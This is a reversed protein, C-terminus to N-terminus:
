HDGTKLPRVGQSEPQYRILQVMRMGHQVEGINEVEYRNGAYKIADSESITVAEKINMPIRHVYGRGRMDDPEVVDAGFAAVISSASGDDGGVYRLVTEAFDDEQFFVDDVDTLIQAALTM